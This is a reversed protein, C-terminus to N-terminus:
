FTAEAEGDDGASEDDSAFYDKTYDEVEEEDDDPAVEDSLNGDNEGEEELNNARQADERKRVREKHELEELTPKKNKHDGDDGGTGGDELSRKKRRNPVLDAPTYAEDAALNKGMQELVAVDVSVPQRSGGRHSKKDSQYRVVDVQTQSRRIWHASNQIRHDIERGKNILYTSQKLKSENTSQHDQYNWPMEPFLAPKTIDTLSKLNQDGLGSEQASRMLLLKAGSPPAGRGRGRGRGRGSM